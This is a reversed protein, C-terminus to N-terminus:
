IKEDQFRRMVDGIAKANNHLDRLTFDEPLVKPQKSSKLMGVVKDSMERASYKFLGSEKSGDEIVILSVPQKLQALRADFRQSYEFAAAHGYEYRTLHRLQEVAMQGWIQDDMNLKDRMRILSPLRETFLRFADESSKPHYVSDLLKKMEEPPAVSVGSLGMMVRRVMKPETAAIEALIRSGTHFGFADFPRDPGYGLNKLAVKMAAAYDEIRPIETPGDSGGHGPTDLALVVRDKALERILATYEIHSNPSQHFFVLHPKSKDGGGPPVTITYHLQGYPNDVYGRRLVPKDAAVAPAATAFAALLTLLSAFRSM